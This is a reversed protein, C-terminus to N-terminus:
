FHPFASIQRTVINIIHLRLESVMIPRLERVMKFNITKRLLQEDYSQRQTKKDDTGLEGENNGQTKQRTRGCRARDSNIIRPTCISPKLHMVLKFQLLLNLM